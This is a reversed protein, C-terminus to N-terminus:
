SPASGTSEAGGLSQFPVRGLGRWSNRNRWTTEIVELGARKFWDEFEERRVYHSTPAVLHDFVVGHIFDFDRQGIWRLYAGYPMREVRQAARVLAAVAMALPLSLVWKVIRRPLRKFVHKRLPDLLHVIWGNNERGYVWVFLHGGPRVLRALAKFGEEPDPLHHLVGISYVLEFGGNAFPLHHIDAQVLDVRGALRAQAADVAESLELGVVQRAGWEHAYESFGGLGCGADLVLKGDFDRSKLPAVWDQWQERTYPNEKPYHMWSYGFADATRKQEGSLLEDRFLRPVGRVVPYRHGALCRLEAEGDLWEGCAPCRLLNRLRPEIQVAPWPSASHHDRRRSGDLMPRARRYAEALVIGGHESVVPLRVGVADTARLLRRCAAVPLRDFIQPPLFVSTRADIEFGHKVAWHHLDRLSIVPHGEHDADWMPARRMLFDFVPRAASANNDQIFVHASGRLVSNLESFVNEPARLHHLLGYVVAADFSERRLFALDTCDAVALHVREILGRARLKDAAVRLVEFSIDTAVLTAAPDLWAALPVVCRGTGAGLEVIDTKKRVRRVWSEIGVADQARWFPSTEVVHDYADATRDFFLRQVSSQSQVHLADIPRLALAQGHTRWFDLWREGDRLSPPSFDAVWHERPFWTGCEDCVYAGTGDSKGPLLRLPREIPSCEPCAFPNDAM